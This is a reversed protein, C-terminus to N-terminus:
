TNPGIRPPNCCTKISRKVEIVDPDFTNNPITKPTSIPTSKPPGTVFAPVVTAFPSTASPIMPGSPALTHIPQTAGIAKPIWAKISFFFYVSSSLSCATEAMM